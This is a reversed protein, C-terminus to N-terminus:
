IRVTSSTPWSRHMIDTNEINGHIYVKPEKVMSIPPFGVQLRIRSFGDVKFLCDFGKISSHENLLYTFNRQWFEELPIGEEKSYRWQNDNECFRSIGNMASFTDIHVRLENTTNNTHGVTHLSKLAHGSPYNEYSAM